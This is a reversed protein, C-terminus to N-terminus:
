PVLSWGIFLILPGRKVIWWKTGQKRKKRECPRKWTRRGMKGLWSGVWTIHNLGESSIWPCQQCSLLGWGSQSELSIFRSQFMYLHNLCMSIIMAETYDKERVFLILVLAEFSQLMMRHLLLFLMITEWKGEWRLKGRSSSGQSSAGKFVRLHHELIYKILHLRKVGVWLVYTWM